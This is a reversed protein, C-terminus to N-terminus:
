LWNKPRAEAQTRMAIDENRNMVNKKIGIMLTLPKKKIPSRIHRAMATRKPKGIAHSRAQIERHRPSGCLPLANKINQIEEM